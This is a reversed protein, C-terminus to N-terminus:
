RIYRIMMEVDELEAISDIKFFLKWILDALLPDSSKGNEFEVVKDLETLFGYFLHQFQNMQQNIKFGLREDNRL